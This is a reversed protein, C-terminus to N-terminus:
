SVYFTVREPNAAQTPTTIATIALLLFTALAFIRLLDKM